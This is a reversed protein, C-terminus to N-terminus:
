RRLLRSIDAELKQALQAEKVIIPLEKERGQAKRRQILSAYREKIGVRKDEEITKDAYFIIKEELTLDSINAGKFGKISHREIAKALQPHGLEKLMKAGEIEHNEHCRARGIDHLLAAVKVFDADVPHGNERIKKALYFAYSSVAECHRLINKDSIAQSLLRKAEEFSLRDNATERKKQQGLEDKQM